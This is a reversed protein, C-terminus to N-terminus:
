TLPDYNVKRVLPDIVFPNLVVLLTGGDPAARAVAETGVTGGAGPRNEIVMTTGHTRNIHEALLRALIDAAAGGPLPVVFKITKPPEARAGCDAFGLFAALAAASLALRHLRRRSWTSGRESIRGRTRRM